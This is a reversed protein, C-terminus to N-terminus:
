PSTKVASRTSAGIITPQCDTRTTRVKQRSDGKQWLLLDYYKESKIQENQSENPRASCSPLWQQSRRKKNESDFQFSLRQDNIQINYSRAFNLETRHLPRDNVWTKVRGYSKEIGSKRLTKEHVFRQNIDKQCMRLKLEEALM